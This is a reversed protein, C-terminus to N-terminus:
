ICWLGQWDNETKVRMALARPWLQAVAAPHGSPVDRGRSDEPEWGPLRPQCPVGDGSRSGTMKVANNVSTSTVRSSLRRCSM